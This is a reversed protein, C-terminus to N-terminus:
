ILLIYHTSFGRLWLVELVAVCADLVLGSDVLLLGPQAKQCTLSSVARTAMLVRIEFRLLRFRQIALAM